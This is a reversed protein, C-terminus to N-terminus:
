LHQAFELLQRVEADSMREIMDQLLAKVSNM